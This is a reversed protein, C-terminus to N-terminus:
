GHDEPKEEQEIDNLKDLHRQAARHIEWSSMGGCWLWILSAGVEWYNRTSQLALFVPALGGLGIFILALGNLYNARLKIKEKQADSM